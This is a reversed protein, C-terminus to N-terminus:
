SEDLRLRDVRVGKTRFLAAPSDVGRRVAVLEAVIALAIEEVTRAGIDLGLPGHVQALRGRPVGRRGIRELLRHIKARSGIVGVFRAESRLAAELCPEDQAHGRTLVVCYASARIPLRALVETFEGVVHSRAGPVATPNCFAERDDVATVRFGCAAALAAVQRGVHGAGFVVLEPAAVCEVFVELGGRRVRRPVEDALVAAGVERAAELVGPPAQGALPALGADLLLRGPGEVPPEVVTAVLVTDGAERALGARRFVEADRVTEVFVRVEGGCILGSGHAEMDSLHFCLLRPAGDRRVRTAAAYVDAEM